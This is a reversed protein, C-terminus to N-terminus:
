HEARELELSVSRHGASRAAAPASRIGAGTRPDDATLARRGTARQLPPPHRGLASVDISRARRVPGRGGLHWFGITAGTDEPPPPESAGATDQELIERALEDRDATVSIRAGDRGWRHVRLTWGDGEALLTRHTPEIASRIPVVGAPLLTAERRVRHIVVSRAFPQDGSLFPQLALADIVDGPSDDDDINLVPVPATTNLM